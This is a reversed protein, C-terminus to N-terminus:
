IGLWPLEMIAYLSWNRVDEHDVLYTHILTALAECRCLVHGSIENEATCRRCLLSDTWAMIYLHWRLTNHGTLIGTVVKSQMRNFSLLRTRAGRSGTETHTLGQWLIIHQNILWCTIKQRTNHRSVGQALDPGAFQHASGERATENGSVGSHGPSAFSDCLIIRPFTM